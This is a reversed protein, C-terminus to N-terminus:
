YEEVPEPDALAAASLGVEPPKLAAASSVRTRTTRAARPAPTKKEKVPVEPAYKPLASWTISRLKTALDKVDTAKLQSIDFYTRSGMLGGGQDYVFDTQSLQTELFVLCPRPNRRTLRRVEEARAIADEDSIDDYKWLVEDPGEKRLRVCAAVLAIYNVNKSVYNGIYKAPYHRYSGEFGDETAPCCYMKHEMFDKPWKAMNAVLMVNRGDPTEAAM